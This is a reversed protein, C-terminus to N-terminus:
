LGCLTLDAAVELALTFLAESWSMIFVSPQLEAAVKALSQSLSILEPEDKAVLTKLQM